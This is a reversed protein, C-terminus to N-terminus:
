SDTFLSSHHAFANGNAMEHKEYKENRITLDSRTSAANSFDFFESIEVVGDAL